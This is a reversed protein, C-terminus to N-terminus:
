RNVSRCQWRKRGQLRAFSAPGKIVDRLSVRQLFQGAWAAARDRHNFPPNLMVFENSYGPATAHADNVLRVVGAQVPVDKDFRENLRNM